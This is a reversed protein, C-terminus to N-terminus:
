GHGRTLNPLEVITAATTADLNAVVSEARTSDFIERWLIFGFVACQCLATTFLAISAGIAGFRPILLLDATLGVVTGVIMGGLVLRERRVATLVSAMFLAAFRIPLLPAMSKLVPAVQRAAAGYIFRSVPGGFILLFGCGLVGLVALLGLSRLLRRRNEGSWGGGALRPYLASAAAQPIFQAAMILRLALQFVGVTEYNSLVGLLVTELKGQLLSLFTM